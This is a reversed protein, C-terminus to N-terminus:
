VLLLTKGVATRAAIAAHAGAADALPFTQGVVPAIVGRAALGLAEEALDFTGDPAIASLPVVTVGRAAAGADDLEYWAGSAVGHRVCRGGSRVLPFLAATVQGSVGDFVVDVGAPAAARVEEPWGPEEYVVVVDAGRDRVVRAKADSGVLGIVRVGAARVLQVLLSGVGGAAATVVVTEGAGVAAVRFLGVATRGDALLATATRLDVGDPLRHLDEARALALTAYGGAGGTTAVVRTGLWAHDVGAGVRDVRGGVGNGPVVPFEARPVAASGARVLTEVFTVAAVEVAVRVQGVGPEPDPLEVPLLVDPPGPRHAVVALM